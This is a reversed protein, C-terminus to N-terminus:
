RQSRKIAVDLALQAAKGLELTTNLSQLSRKLDDRGMNPANEILTQFDTGQAIAPRVEEMLQGLLKLRILDGPSPDGRQPINLRPDGTLIQYILDRLKGLDPGSSGSNRTGYTAILDASQGMLVPYAGGIVHEFYGTGGFTGSTGADSEVYEGSSDGGWMLALWGAFEYTSSAPGPFPDKAVVSAAGASTGIVHDDGALPWSGPAYTSSPSIPTGLLPADGGITFADARVRSPGSVGGGSPIGYWRTATWTGWGLVSFNGRVRRKGTSHRGTNWFLFQYNQTGDPSTAFSAANRTFTAPGGLLNSDTGLDIEAGTPWLKAITQFEDM